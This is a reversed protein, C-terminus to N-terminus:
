LTIAISKAFEVRTVDVTYEIIHVVPRPVCVVRLVEGSADKLSRHVVNVIVCVATDWERGPQIAYRVVQDGVPMTVAAASLFDGDTVNRHQRGLAVMRLSLKDAGFLLIRKESEDALQWRFSLMEKDQFKHLVEGVSFNPLDHPATFPSDLAEVM